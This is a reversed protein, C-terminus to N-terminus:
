KRGLYLEKFAAKARHMTVKVKVLSWGLCDAIEQYSLTQSYYLTLVIRYNPRLDALTSRVEDRLEQDVAREEPAPASLVRKRRAAARCTNIAIRYLWTSFAARGRFRPLGRWANLFTEQLLDGAEERDGCLNLCLTFIQDRYQLYLRDFAGRDGTQAQAILAADEPRGSKITEVATSPMTQAGAKLM